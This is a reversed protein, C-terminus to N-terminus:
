GTGSGKAEAYAERWIEKRMEELVETDWRRGWIFVDVDVDVDSYITIKNEGPVYDYWVRAPKGKPTALVRITDMNTVEVFEDPLIIEASGNVVSVRRMIYNASAFPSEMAYTRVKTDPNTPFSKIYISASKPGMVSLYGGIYCDGVISCDGEISVLNAQMTTNTGDHVFVERWSIENGASGGSACYIGFQTGHLRVRTAGQSDSTVYRHAGVRYCANWYMNVRGSGDEITIYFDSYSGAIAHRIGYSGPSYHVSGRAFGVGTIIQDSSYIKGSVDLKYSPSSHGIAVNTGNDFIISNGLTDTATWKAVYNVTGSGGVGGSPAEVFEIGNETSKVALLKGAQGSYSSPTDTLSLFTHTHTASAFASAHQGDLKDADLGSGSGQPSIDSPDHTHAEPPYTSPKDPINDWFPSSWFDTVDSRTHNHSLPAFNASVWDEIRRRWTKLFSLLKALTIKMGEGM